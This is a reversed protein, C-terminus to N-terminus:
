KGSLYDRCFDDITGTYGKNELYTKLAKEQSAYFPYNHLSPAKKPIMYDKGFDATLMEHYDKIIGITTTEFPVNIITDYCGKKIHSTEYLIWTPYNAIEDSEAETYLSCLSDSLRALQRMLSDDRTLSVNCLEEIESIRRDLQGSISLNNWERLLINIKQVLYKQLNALECDRPIYDYPYIDIGITRYPFGHFKQYFEDLRWQSANTVVVSQDCTLFNNPENASAYMGALSIGHPLEDPLIQVLKNYDPRKLGIDIDDDWPIFGQHRVAGLLTGGCAFYELHHKQCIDTIIELLELKAAWAHKMMECVYFDLRYEAQFFSDPFTM